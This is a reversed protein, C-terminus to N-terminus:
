LNTAEVFRRYAEHSTYWRGGVKVCELTVPLHRGTVRVGRDRWKILHRYTVCGPLVDPAKHLMVLSEDLLHLNKGSM